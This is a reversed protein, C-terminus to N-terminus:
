QVAEVSVTTGRGSASKVTLTSGLLRAREQMGMLGMKGSYAFKSIVEPLEFGKGNDSITLTTKEINFIMQVMAETAAAHKVINNLAEQAIRFLALEVESSLRRPNGQIKFLVDIGHQDTMDSALWQLAKLLGLEELM